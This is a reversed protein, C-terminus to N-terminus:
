FTWIKAFEKPSWGVLDSVQGDGVEVVRTKGDSRLAIDVSIFPSPIRDAVTQALPLYMNRVITGMSLEVSPAFVKQDTCFFRKETGEVYDEWKRICIGGEIVGRYKEMEEIVRAVDEPKEIVSGGATKLSKVYDKVLAKEWGLGHLTKILDEPIIGGLGCPFTLTNATVDALKDYWNPIHHTAYYQEKSTLLKGGYFDVLGELQNYEHENLMWGRYVVKDQKFPTSSPGFGLYITDDELNVIAYHYGAADLAKAQDQFAEDIRKKNLPNSPFLFYPNM